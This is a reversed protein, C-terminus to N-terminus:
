GHKTAQTSTPKIASQLLTLVLIIDTMTSLQIIYKDTALVIVDSSIM